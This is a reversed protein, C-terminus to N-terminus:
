NGKGGILVALGLRQIASKAEAVARRRAPRRKEANRNTTPLAACDPAWSTAYQLSKPGHLLAPASSTKRSTKRM